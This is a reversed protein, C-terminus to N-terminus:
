SLPIGARDGIAQEIDLSRQFGQRAAPYNGERLDISHLGNGQEVPAPRRPRRTQGGAAKTGARPGLLPAASWPRRAARRAAPRGAGGAPGGTEEVLNADQQV